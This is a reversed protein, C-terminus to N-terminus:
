LHVIQNFVEALREKSIVGHVEITVDLFKSYKVVGTGDVDQPAVASSPPTM